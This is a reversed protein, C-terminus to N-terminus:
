LVKHEPRGRRADLAATRGVREHAQALLARAEEDSAAALAPEPEHHSHRGLLGLHAGYAVGRVDDPAVHVLTFSADRDLSAAAEVSTEWTGEVIWVVVKM